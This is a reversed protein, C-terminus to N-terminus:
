RNAKQFRKRRKKLIEGRERNSKQLLDMDTLSFVLLNKGEGMCAAAMLLNQKVLGRHFQRATEDLSFTERIMLVLMKQAESCEDAFQYKNTAWISIIKGTLPTIQLFHHKFISVPFERHSPVFGFLRSGDPAKLIETIGERSITNGLKQGFLERPLVSAELPKSFIYSFVFFPICSKVVRSPLATLM